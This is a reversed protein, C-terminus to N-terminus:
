RRLQRDRERALAQTCKEAADRYVQGVRLNDTQQARLVAELYRGECPDRDTDDNM